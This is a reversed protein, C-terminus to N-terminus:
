SKLVVGKVKYPVDHQLKADFYADDVEQLELRVVEAPDFWESDDRYVVLEPDLDQLLPILDKVKVLAGGRAGGQGGGASSM